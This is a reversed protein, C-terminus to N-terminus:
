PTRRDPLRIRVVSSSGSYVVYLIRAKADIAIGTRSMAGEREAGCHTFRLAGRPM